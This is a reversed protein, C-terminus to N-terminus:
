LYLDARSTLIPVSQPIIALASTYSQIAEEDRGSREQLKGMNTYILANRHDNPSTKLAKQFLKESQTISDKAAAALAQEVLQEYIQANSQAKAPHIAIVFAILAITVIQNLSQKM